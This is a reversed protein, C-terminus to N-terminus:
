GEILFPNFTKEQLVTTKPGHGPYIAYEDGLPLIKTKIATIITDYDGGPLDVRGISGAFILDGSIVFGEGVLSIGGLTHGPTEIVTLKQNGVAITDGESLNVDPPPLELMLGLNQSLNSSADSIMPADGKGIALKLGLRKHIYEVAGIHDGHGHTLIIQSIKLGLEEVRHIIHSGEDGPDIIVGEKSEADYVLYCNVEMMGVPLQEVIM